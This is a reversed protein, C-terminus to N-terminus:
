CIIISKTDKHYDGISPFWYLHKIRKREEDTFLHYKKNYKLRISQQKFWKGTEYEELDKKNWYKKPLVVYDNPLRELLLAGSKYIKLVKRKELVSFCCRLITDGEQLIKGFYDKM